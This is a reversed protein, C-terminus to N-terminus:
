IQDFSSCEKFVERTKSNDRNILIVQNGAAHAAVLEEEIDSLFLIEYAQVNLQKAIEKYSAVERKGGVATDFYAAISPTLDGMESYKFLLKQALVSGSSYIALTKGEKIWRQMAVPVDAYIHSKLKGSLYGEEWILGQLSKLTPDKKDEKIWSLLTAKVQDLSDLKLKELLTMVKPDHQHIELYSPLQDFSFPFLIKFVFDKSTTTGEVDMLIVRIKELNM